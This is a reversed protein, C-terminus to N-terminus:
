HTSSYFKTSNGKGRGIEKKKKKKKKEAETEKGRVKEKKQKETETEKGRVNEEKKKM